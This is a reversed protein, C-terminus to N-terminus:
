ILEEFAVHASFFFYRWANYFSSKLFFMFNRPIYVEWLDRATVTSKPPIKIDDWQATIKNPVPGRNVLLLAM